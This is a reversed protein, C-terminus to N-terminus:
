VARLEHSRTILCNVYQVITLHPTSSLDDFCRRSCHIGIHVASYVALSIRVRVGVSVRM